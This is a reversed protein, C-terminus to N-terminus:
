KRRGKNNIELMINVNRSTLREFYQIIQSIPKPFKFLLSFRDADDFVVKFKRVKSALFAPFASEFGLAWVVDNKTFNLCYFFSRLMWIFYLYKVLSGGYGGGRLIIKKNVSYPLGVEEEEGKIREWGVHTVQLKPFERHLHNSIKYLRLRRSIASLPALFIVKEKNEFM